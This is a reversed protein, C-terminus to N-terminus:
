PRLPEMSPDYLTWKRMTSFGHGSALNRAMEVNSAVGDGSPLPNHIMVAVRLVLALLFVLVLLSRERSCIWSAPNASM